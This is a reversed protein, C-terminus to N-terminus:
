IVSIDGYRGQGSGNKISSGNFICDSVLLPYMQPVLHWLSTYHGQEFSRLSELLLMLTTVGFPLEKLTPGPPPFCIPTKMPDCSATRKRSCAKLRLSGQWQRSRYVTASIADHYNRLHTGSLIVAGNLTDWFERSAQLCLRVSILEHTPPLRLRAWVELWGKGLWARTILDDQRNQAAYKDPHWTVKTCGVTLLAM